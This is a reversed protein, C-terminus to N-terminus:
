QSTGPLTSYRRSLDHLASCQYTCVKGLFLCFLSFWKAGIYVKAPAYNNLCCHTTFLLTVAYLMNIHCSKSVKKKKLKLNKKMGRHM